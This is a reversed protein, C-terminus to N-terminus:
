IREGYPAPNVPADEVAALAVVCAADYEEWIQLYHRHAAEEQQKAQLWQDITYGEEVTTRNSARMADNWAELAEAKAERLDNLDYVTFITATKTESM